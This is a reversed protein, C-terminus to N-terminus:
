QLRRRYFAACFIGLMFVLFVAGMVNDYRVITVAIAGVTIAIAILTFRFNTQIDKRIDDFGTKILDKSEALSQEYNECTGDRNVEHYIFKPDTDPSLLLCSEYTKNKFISEYKARVCGADLVYDKIGTHIDASVFGMDSEGVAIATSSMKDAQLEPHKNDEIWCRLNLAPGKGVNEWTIKIQGRGEVKLKIVPTATNYEANLMIEAQKNSAKVTQSTLYVYFATVSVLAATLAALVVQEKGPYSGAIYAIVVIIIPIGILFIWLAWRTM